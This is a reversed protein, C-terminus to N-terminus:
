DSSPSTVPPTEELLKKARALQEELRTLTGRQQAQQASIQELLQQMAVASRQQQRREQWQAYERWGWVWGGALLPPLLALAILLTRLRYRM